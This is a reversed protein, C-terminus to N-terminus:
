VYLDLIRKIMNDDQYFCRAFDCNEIHLTPILPMEVYQPNSQNLLVRVSGNSWHLKRNFRGPFHYNLIADSNKETRVVTQNSLDWIEMNDNYSILVGIKANDDIADISYHFFGLSEHENKKLDLMEMGCEITTFILYRKNPSMAISTIPKLHNTHIVTLEDELVNGIFIRNSYPSLVFTENDDLFFVRDIISPYSNFVKLVEGSYTLRLEVFGDYYTLIFYKADRSFNRGRIEGHGCTRFRNIIKDQKLDFLINTYKDNYGYCLIYKQNASLMGDYSNLHGGLQHNMKGNRVDYIVASSDKYCNICYLSNASFSCNGIIRESSDSSNSKYLIKSLKFDSLNWLAIGLLYNCLLYQNDKSASIYEVSWMSNSSLINPKLDLDNLDWIYIFGDEDGSICYRNDQTFTICTIRSKHGYLVKYIQLSSVGLKWIVLTNKNSSMALFKEDYSFAGEYFIGEITAKIEGNEIDYVSYKKTSPVDPIEGYYMQDLIDQTESETPRKMIICLKKKPSYFFIENNSECLKYEYIEGNMYDYTYKSKDSYLYIEKLKNDVNIEKICRLDGITHKSEDSYLCIEKLMNDDNIEKIGSLDGIYTKKMQLGTLVDWIIVYNDRGYSVAILTDDSFAVKVVRESHGSFFNSNSIHCGQFVCPYKGAISWLVGNLPINGVDLDSFDEGCVKDNRSMRMTRVVNYLAGNTEEWTKQRLLNAYYHLVNKQIKFSLM